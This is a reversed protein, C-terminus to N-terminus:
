KLAADIMARWCDRADDDSMFEDGSYCGAYMPADKMERTPERMAMIVARAAGEAYFDATTGYCARLILAVREVMESM